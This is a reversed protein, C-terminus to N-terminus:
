ILRSSNVLLCFLHIISKRMKMMLLHMVCCLPLATKSEQKCLPSIHVMQLMSHLYGNVNFNNAAILIFINNERRNISMPLFLHSILSSSQITLTSGAECHGLPGWHQRCDVAAACSAPVHQCTSWTLTPTCTDPVHRMSMDMSHVLPTDMDEAPTVSTHGTHSPPLKYYHHTSSKLFVTSVQIIKCQRGGMKMGNFFDILPLYVYSFLCM